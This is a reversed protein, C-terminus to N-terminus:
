GQRTCFAHPISGKDVAISAHHGHKGIFADRIDNDVWHDNNGYFIYFRPAKDEPPSSTQWLDDLWKEECISRMESRGLHLAQWVGDRSKLWDVTTTVASEDFGTIKSVIWTLREKSFCGLIWQALSHANVELYPVQFAWMAKRGQPSRAIYTLTPFLLFGHCLNLDPTKSPNQQHRHMIEVAIYSGVSHGMLIVKDYPKDDRANRQAVDAWIGEIQGELDYPLNTESYPEHENDDFGLLNRGYIDYSTTASATQAKDLLGRLLTLFDDYYSIIGPNGCIFYILTRHSAQHASALDISPM